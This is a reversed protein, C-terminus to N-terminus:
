LYELECSKNYVTLSTRKERDSKEFLVWQEREDSYHAYGNAILCEIIVGNDLTVRLDNVENVDASVVAGGVIDKRFREINKLEDNSRSDVGDWSQYDLTSVLIDGNKIIRTLGMGHLVLTGFQVDLIEAECTIDFLKEGVLRAAFEKESNNM